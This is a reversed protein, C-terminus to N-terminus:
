GVPRDIRVYGRSETTPKVEAAHTDPRPGPPTPSTSTAESVQVLQEITERVAHMRTSLEQDFMELARSAGEAIERGRQDITRLQEEAARLRAEAATAQRQAAEARSAAAEALELVEAARSAVMESVGDQAESEIEIAEGMAAEAATKREDLLATLRGIAEEARADLEAVLTGLVGQAHESAFELREKCERDLAEVAMEAREAAQGLKGEISRAREAATDLATQAEQLATLSEAAAATAVHSATQEAIGAAEAARELADEAQKLKQDITPILRVAPRLKDGAQTATEDLRKVVGETEGVAQRLAERGRDAEALLGRLSEAFEAYTAADVVRPSLFVEEALTTTGAAHPTNPQRPTGGPTSGNERTTEQM